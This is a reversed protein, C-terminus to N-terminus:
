SSDRFLTNDLKIQKSLWNVIEFGLSKSLVSSFVIWVHIGRRGSFETLYTIGQVDLYSLLQRQIVSYLLQIQPNRKDRCDFDLCIWKILGNRFGQQYCGAAGRKELMGRLLSDDFPVYKTIYAGSNQQIAIAYPNVVFLEYMRKALNDFIDEM